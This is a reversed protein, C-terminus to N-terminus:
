GIIKFAGFGLMTIDIFKYRIVFAHAGPFERPPLSGATAALTRVLRKRERTKAERRPKDDSKNNVAIKKPNPTIEVRPSGGAVENRTRITLGSSCHLRAIANNSPDFAAFGAAASAAQRFPRPPSTLIDFPM